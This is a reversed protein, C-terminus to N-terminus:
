LRALVACTERVAGASVTRYDGGCVPEAPDSRAVSFSGHVQTAGTEAVLDAVNGPRVGGGPLVEIRGRAHEILRRILAAGEGATARQGSTLVRTVGLDILRGLAGVPDPTLDFARHFVAQGRGGMLRTLERTRVLDIARDSTLIGFALGDAGHELALEADRRMTAFEADSYVFGGPRPRIMAVVPVRTTRKVELLTGLSPTLGGLELAANLELRDAGAAEAAVADGAAGVAVEVLVRRGSPPAAASV